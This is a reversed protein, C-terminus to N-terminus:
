KAAALASNPSPKLREIGQRALATIVQAQGNQQMASKLRAAISEWSIATTSTGALAAEEFYDMLSLGAMHTLYAASLGQVLGGALYTAFHSKLVTTLIQTSLEVLGLKVTLSALTGAAAKADDLSLNFGYVKGLDMILQGNIAVTALLDLTPVPNAFATAAAVWKLQDVQTQARERWLGNLQLQVERRLTQVQRLTTAAVLAETQSVFSEKLSAYLAEVKVPAPELTENVTGDSQHRRVKIPRPATAMSVVQVMGPLAAVREELQNLITEQDADDYHDTKNFALIVGQGDMVRDALLNFSSETLDGDTMLLIADYLSWADADLSHEPSLSVEQLSLKALDGDVLAASQALELLTTKGTHAEGAVALNLIKRGLAAQLSQHQDQLHPCTESLLNTKDAAEAEETLNYILGQVQELAAEVAARDAALPKAAVPPTPTRDHQRWWWIGTGMAMASLLTSGDFLNFHVTDLLWLTASLGLGGVLIPRKLAM